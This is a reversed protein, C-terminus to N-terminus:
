TILHRFLKETKINRFFSLSNIRALVYWIMTIDNRLNLLLGKTWFFPTFVDQLYFKIAFPTIDKGVGL